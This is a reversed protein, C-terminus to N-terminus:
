FCATRPASHGGAKKKTRTRTTGAEARQWLSVMQRCSHSTAAAAGAALLPALPAIPWVADALWRWERREECARDASGRETNRRGLVCAGKPRSQEAEARDRALWGCCPGPRCLRLFSARLLSAPGCRPAVHIQNLRRHTRKIHKHRAPPTGQQLPSRTRLATQRSNSAAPTTSSTRQPTHM